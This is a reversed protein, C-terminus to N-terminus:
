IDFNITANESIMKQPNLPTQVNQLENALIQRKNRWLVAMEHVSAILKKKREINHNSSLLVIGQMLNSFYVMWEEGKVTSGSQALMETLIDCLKGCLGLNEHVVKYAEEFKNQSYLEESNDIEKALVTFLIAIQECVPINSYKSDKYINMKKKLLHTKNQHTTM